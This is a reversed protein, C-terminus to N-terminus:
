RCHPYDEEPVLYDKLEDFWIPGDAYDGIIGPSSATIEQGSIGVNSGTLSGDSRECQYVVRSNFERPDDSEWADYGREKFLKIVDDVTFDTPEYGYGGDGGVEGTAGGGSGTGIEVGHESMCSLWAYDDINEFQQCATAAATQPDAEASATPGPDASAQETPAPAQQNAAVPLATPLPRAQARDCGALGVMAATVALWAMPKRIAHWRHNLQEPTQKTDTVLAENSMIVEQGLGIIVQYCSM